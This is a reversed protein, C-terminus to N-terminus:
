NCQVLDKPVWWTVISIGDYNWEFIIFDKDEGHYYSEQFSTWKETRFTSLKKKYLRVILSGPPIEYKM